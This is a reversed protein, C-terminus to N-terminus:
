PWFKELAVSRLCAHRQECAKPEPLPEVHSGAALCAKECGVVPQNPGDHQGKQLCPECLPVAEVRCCVGGRCLRTTRAILFGYGEINLSRRGHADMRRICVGKAARVAVGLVAMLYALDVEPHLEGVKGSCLGREPNLERRTGSVKMREFHRRALNGDEM